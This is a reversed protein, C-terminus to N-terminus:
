PCRIIRYGGGGGGGGGGKNINKIINENIKNIKTQKIINKFVEDIVVTESNKVAEFLSQIKAMHLADAPDYVTIMSNYTVINAELLPLGDEHNCDKCFQNFLAEAREVKDELESKAYVNIM